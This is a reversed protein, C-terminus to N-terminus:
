IEPSEEVPDKLDKLRNVFEKKIEGLGIDFVLDWSNFALLMYKINLFLLSHLPMDSPQFYKVDGMVTSHALFSLYWYYFDYDKLAAENVLKAKKKYSEFTWRFIFGERNKPYKSEIEGYKSLITSRNNILIEKTKEDMRSYIDYNDYKDMLQKAAVIEYDLFAKAKVEREPLDLKTLWGIDIVKEMLSRLLIAGQKGFGEECVVVISWYVQFSEYFLLNIVKKYNTELKKEIQGKNMEILEFLTNFLGYSLNLHDSYRLFFNRKFEIYNKKLVEPILKENM